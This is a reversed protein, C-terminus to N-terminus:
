RGFLVERAGAGGEIKELLTVELNVYRRQGDFQFLVKARGKRRDIRSIHGEYRLLPGSTVIVRDDEVFIDSRGIVGREDVMAVINSIEVPEIERFHEVNHLVGYIHPLYRTKVYFRLADSTNLLVYGPFMNKLFTQEKGRRRETVERKPVLLDYEPALGDANLVARVYQTAIDEKGTEVFNAYWNV